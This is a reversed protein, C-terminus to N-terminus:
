ITIENPNIPLSITFVTGLGVTSKVEINGHHKAIIGWSISLGLGTGQGVPKTTFFPDYVNKLNEPPIGKGTDQIIIQIASSDTPCIGTKITIEGQKEIAQGANVFLNMFVQNLQAILCVIQPLNNDYHKVVTCKYKLENWIINLTSDLGKHVDALQWESEGAHAFDKLDKVINKIRILGEKSETILDTIDSKLFDYNKQAVLTKIDAQKAASVVALSAETIELIDNTYEEFSGFNSYIFAIPNNLEHAIGAALQGITAMKESQLLQSQAQALQQLKEEYAKRETIDRVTALIVSKDDLNMPSLFVEAPFVKQNDVRRHLWEFRNHGQEYAKAIMHQAYRASDLGNAQLPPSLDAPQKSCFELLNNFGFLVLCAQNCDSFGQEDLLMVAESSSSYLTRFKVESKALLKEAAIRNSLDSFLAFAYLIRTNDADSIINHHVLCPISNGDKHNLKTELQYDGILNQGNNEINVLDRFPKGLLVQKEYGSLKLMAMNCDTIVGNNDMRIFGQSTSALIAEIRIRMHAIKTGLYTFIASSLILLVAICTVAIALVTPNTAIIVREDGGEHYHIFHAAKMAIYHMSSIASGLVTGGLLSPIISNSSIPLKALSTKIVLAAIALCVAAVLSSLLLVPDYRLIGDLRIAGMGIFHMLGIGIAMIIGSVVCKSFTAKHSTATNLSVAAAITGPLISLCTLWPDYTVSSSLRFASMGIFHMAWIGGGLIVAGITIWFGRQEGYALNKTMILASISSIIAILVSVVVLHIDYTSQYELALDFQSNLSFM